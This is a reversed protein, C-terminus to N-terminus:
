GEGGFGFYGLQVVFLWNNATVLQNPGFFSFGAMALCYQM